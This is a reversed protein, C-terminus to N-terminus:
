IFGLMLFHSCQLAYSHHALTFLLEGVGKSYIAATFFWDERISARYGPPLCVTLFNFLGSPSVKCCSGPLM